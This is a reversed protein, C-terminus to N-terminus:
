GSHRAKRMFSPVAEAAMDKLIRARALPDLGALHERVIEEASSIRTSRRVIAGGGIVALGSLVLVASLLGSFFGRRGRVARMVMTAVGAGVLSMGLAGDVLPSVATEAFRARIVEKREDWDETAAWEEELTTM